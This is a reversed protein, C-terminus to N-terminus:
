NGGANPRGPRAGMSYKTVLVVDDRVLRDTLYRGIIRESEGGAYIDATDVVNGGWGLYADLIQGAVSEDCGWDAQGFTMTGLGLPAVRLGSRGMLRYRTTMGPDERDDTAPERRAGRDQRPS